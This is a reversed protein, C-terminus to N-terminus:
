ILGFGYAPAKSLKNKLGNLFRVSVCDLDQTQHYESCFVLGVRQLM